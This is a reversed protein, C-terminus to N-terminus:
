VLTNKPPWFEKVAELIAEFPDAEHVINKRKTFMSEDIEVILGRGGIKTNSLRLLANVCVERYYNNWAIVASEEIGLERECWKISTYEYAWGYIFRVFAVLSIRSGELWNGVRLGVEKSCKHCRWRCQKGISLKMDHHNRCERSKQVIGKDQLLAVADEETSPLSFLNM